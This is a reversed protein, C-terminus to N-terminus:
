DNFLSSPLLIPQATIDSAVDDASRQCQVLVFFPDRDAYTVSWGHVGTNNLDTAIPTWPGQMSPGRFLHVKAPAWTRDGIEWKVVVRPPKTELTLSVKTIKASQAHKLDTQPVPLSDAVGYKPNTNHIQAPPAPPHLHPNGGKTQPRDPFEPQDKPISPSTDVVANTEQDFDAESGRKDNGMNTLLSPPAVSVHLGSKQSSSNIDKTGLINSILMPDDSDEGSVENAFMPAVVAEVGEFEENKEEKSAAVHANLLSNMETLTLSRSNEVPLDSSRVMKKPSPVVSKDGKDGTRNLDTSQLGLSLPRKDKQASKKSSQPKPPNLPATNDVQAIKGTNDRTGVGNEKTRLDDKLSVNASDPRVNNNASQNFGTEVRNFETSKPTPPFMKNKVADIGRQMDDTLSGREPDQGTQVLQITRGQLERNGAMDSVEVRVEATEAGKESWWVLEGSNKLGETQISQLDIAIEQWNESVAATPNNSLTSKSYSVAVKPYRRQLNADEISWTLVLEGTNRQELQVTLNPPATDVLVRLLPNRRYNPNLLGDKTYTKFLFWYEGDSPANFFFQGKEPTVRGYPYWNTGQDNSYLLEVENPVDELGDSKIEFPIVFQGHRTPILPGGKEQAFAFTGILVACTFVARTFLSRFGFPRKM